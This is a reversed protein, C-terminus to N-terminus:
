KLSLRDIIRMHYRSESGERISDFNCKQIQFCTAIVGPGAKLGRCNHCKDTGFNVLFRLHAAENLAEHYATKLDLAAQYAADFDGSLFSELLTESPDVVRIGPIGAPSRGRLHGRVDSPDEGVEGGSPRQAPLNGEPGWGDGSAQDGPGGTFGVRDGDSTGESQYRADTSNENM